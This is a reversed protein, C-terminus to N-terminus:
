LKNYGLLVKIYIIQEVDQFQNIHLCNWHRLTIMNIQIMLFKRHTGNITNSINVSTTTIMHYNSKCSGTYDTGIVVLTTLEFGAWALHERYLMIHYLKDTVQSLDTTKVLYEPKRRWYFSIESINNFTTNFVMIRDEGHLVQDWDRNQEEVIQGLMQETAQNKTYNCWSWKRKSFIEQSQM